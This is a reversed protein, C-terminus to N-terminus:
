HFNKLNLTSDLLLWRLHEILFSTRSIEYFEGSFVQALTEKKLLSAPRLVVSCSWAVAESQGTHYCRILKRKM